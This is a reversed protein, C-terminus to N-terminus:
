YVVVFIEVMMGIFLMVIDVGEDCVEGWVCYILYLVEELEYIGFIMLLLICLNDLGESVKFM